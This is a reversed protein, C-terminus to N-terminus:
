MGLLLQIMEDVTQVVKANAAYNQEILLLTQIEQDSDVGSTLEMNRLSDARAQSYSAEGDATLRDGSIGSLMETTLSALSHQGATFIPSAPDQLTTLATQWDMLLQANGVPGPTAAGLGDRLRWLAGGADPDAVANLRLRQSLGAENLPDFAAGGDTFLGAAGPARTGDLGPAAFREIVERAIADIQTQAEPALQDRVRFDGALTGGAIPGHDGATAVPKGNLTLGSLAGSGTTMGFTIQGVPSFGFQAVSGDVLTAGGTTILAVQGNDRAVERVPVIAAISDIVQQRQDILASPDRGTGSNSRILKNLEGVRTLATNLQRVSHEIRDDATTRASQIDASVTGLQAALARATEAVRDLRADSEPRSSAEILATDFAAIRGGLSQADEPSGLVGELRQLFESQTRHNGATAEAWRRDGILVMDAHRHVGMVSVGQGTDGVQRSRLIIERRGYGETMANAINSSVIEAARANATLGSLASSLSGAISM